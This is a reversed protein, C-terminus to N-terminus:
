LDDRVEHDFRMEILLAAMLEGAKTLVNSGSDVFGRRALAKISTIYYTGYMSEDHGHRHIDILLEAQNSTLALNKLM